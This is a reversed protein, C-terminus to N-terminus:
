GEVVTIASSKGRLRAVGDRVITEGEVLGETIEVWGPRRDGIVVTRREANDGEAVWVFQEAARHGQQVPLGVRSTVGMAFQLGQEIVRDVHLSRLLWAM